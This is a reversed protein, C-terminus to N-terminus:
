PNFFAKKSFFVASVVMTSGCIVLSLYPCVMVTLQFVILLM